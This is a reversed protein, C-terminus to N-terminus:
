QDTSPLTIRGITVNDARGSTVLVCHTPDLLSFGELEDPRPLADYVPLPRLDSTSWPDAPVLRWRRGEIQNQIILLLGHSDVWHLNQVWPGCPYRSVLVGPESTRPAAALRVPDYLRVANRVQGYDATALLWRDGHRVFEPRCGQVALDDATTNLIARDLNRDILMRPWDLHYITGAKTATVTNGLYCGFEPNWTLGTPHNLLNVGHLTLDIQLGTYHVTPSDDGRPGRDISYQRIVGNPVADGYLWLFGDHESAGQCRGLGECTQVSEVTVSLGSPRTAPGAAILALLLAVL